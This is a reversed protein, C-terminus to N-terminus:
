IITLVIQACGDEYSASVNQVEREGYHKYAYEASCGNELDVNNLRDYVICLQIHGTSSFIVPKLEKLKM